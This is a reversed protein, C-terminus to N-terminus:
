SSDQVLAPTSLPSALQLVNAESLSEPDDRLERSTERHTLAESACNTPAKEMRSSGM